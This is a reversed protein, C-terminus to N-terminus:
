SADGVVKYVDNWFDIKHAQKTNRNSIVYFQLHRDKYPGSSCKNNKDIIGAKFPNVNTWAGDYYFLAKSDPQEMYLMYSVTFKEHINSESAYDPMNSAVGFMVLYPDNQDNVNSGKKLDLENLIKVAFPRETANVIGVGLGPDAKCNEEGIITNKKLKGPTLTDSYKGYMESLNAQVLTLCNKADLLDQKQKAEDIYGLLAPVLIAALIALIVLVVILEVLTFGKNNVKVKNEM